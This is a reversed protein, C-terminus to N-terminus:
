MQLGKAPYPNISHVIFLLLSLNFMFNEINMRNVQHKTYYHCNSAQTSDNLSLLQADYDSLGNVVPVITYNSLKCKAIFFGDIATASNNDIRTPFDVINYLYYTALLSDLQIRNNSNSLYNINFDGCIILNKTV